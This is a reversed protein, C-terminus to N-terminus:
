GNSVLNQTFKRIFGSQKILNDLSTDRKLMTVFYYFVEVDFMQELERVSLFLIFMSKKWSERERNGSLPITSVMLLISADQSCVFRREESNTTSPPFPMPVDDFDDQKVAM